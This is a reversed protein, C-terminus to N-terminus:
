VEEVWQQLRFHLCIIVKSRVRRIRIGSKVLKLYSVRCFESLDHVSGSFLGYFSSSFFYPIIDLYMWYQSYISTRHSLTALYLGKIVVFKKSNKVWLQDLRPLRNTSFSTRLNLQLPPPQPPRRQQQRQRFRNPTSRWLSPTNGAMALVM